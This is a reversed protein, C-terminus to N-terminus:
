LGPALTLVAGNRALVYLRECHNANKQDDAQADSQEEQRRDYQHEAKLQNSIVRDVKRSVEKKDGACVEKHEAQFVQDQFNM